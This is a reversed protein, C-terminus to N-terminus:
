NITIFNNKNTIKLKIIHYIHYSKCLYYNNEKIYIFIINLKDNTKVQM